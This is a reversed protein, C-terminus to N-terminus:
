NYSILIYCSYTDTYYTSYPLTFVIYEKNANLTVDMKYTYYKYMEEYREYYAYEGCDPCSESFETYGGSDDNSSICTIGDLLIGYSDFSYGGSSASYSDTSYGPFFDEVTKQPSCTCGNSFYPTANYKSNVDANYDFNTITYYGNKAPTFAYSSMGSEYLSQTDQTFEYAYDYEVHSGSGFFVDNKSIRLYLNSSQTILSAVITSSYDNSTGAIYIPKKTGVFCNAYSGDINNIYIPYYISNTLSQCDYFTKNITYAYDFIDSNVSILNRCNEFTSTFVADGNYYGIYVYAYALNTCDKFAYDAYTIGDGCIEGEYLNTCGRFAAGVDYTNSDLYLYAYYLSTCDEFAAYLSYASSPIPPLYELYDCGQYTYELCEVTNPLTPSEIINCNAFAYAAITINKNRIKTLINELESKTKSSSKVVFSWGPTYDYDNTDYYYSEYTYNYDGYSYVDGDTLEPLDSWYTYEPYTRGDKQSSYSSGTPLMLNDLNQTYELYFIYEINETTTASISSSTGASVGNKTVRTITWLSSTTISVRHTEGYAIEGTGSIVPQTSLKTADITIGNKSLIYKATITRKVVNFKATLATNGSITFIYTADSSVLNEGRYWGAFSYGSNALATVTVSQGTMYQGAGTVSGGTGASLTVRYYVSEFKAVLQTNTTITFTYSPNSSVLIGNDYWGVFSTSSSPTATVTVSSNTAFQGGGTVSGSGSTSLVLECGEGYVAILKTNTLVAFTHETNTTVLIGSADFWGKFNEEDGRARVTVMDGVKYQGGGSVRGGFGQKEVTVTIEATKSAKYVETINIWEGNPSENSKGSAMSFLETPTADSDACIVISSNTLYWFSKDNQTPLMIDNNAKMYVQFLGMLRMTTELEDTGKPFYTEEDIVTGSFGRLKSGEIDGIYGMHAIANTVRDHTASDKIQGTSKYDSYFLPYELAWQEIANSMNSANTADKSANAKGVVGAVIPIAIAALVALIGVVILLEILTFGRKGKVSTM